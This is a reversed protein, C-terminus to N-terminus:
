EMMLARSFKFHSPLLPLWSFANSVGLYFGSPLFLFLFHSPLIPARFSGGKKQNEKTAKKCTKDERPKFLFLCHCHAMTKKQPTVTVFAIAVM